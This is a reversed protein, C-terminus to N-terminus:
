IKCNKLLPHIDCLHRTEWFVLWELDSLNLHYIHLLKQTDISSDLIFIDNIFKGSAKATNVCLIQVINTFENYWQM